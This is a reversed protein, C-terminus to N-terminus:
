AATHEKKWWLDQSLAYVFRTDYLLKQFEKVIEGALVFPNNQHFTDFVAWFVPNYKVAEYYANDPLSPPFFDEIYEHFVFGEMVCAELWFHLNFVMNEVLSFTIRGPHKRDWSSLFAALKSALWKDCSEVANGPYRSSALGCLDDEEPFLYSIEKSKLNRTLKLLEDKSLDYPLNFFNGGKNKMSRLIVAKFINANAM